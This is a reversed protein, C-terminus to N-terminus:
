RADAGAADCGPRTRCPAHDGADIAQCEDPLGHRVIRPELLGQCQAAPHAGRAGLKVAGHRLALNNANPEVLWPSIGLRREVQEFWPAMAAENLEVLGFRDAWFKLTDAPTRFSSAWNVTTSGGVCRGQLVTMAKDATKRAASEQYLAPYAESELQHFDASSRLPGEEIIILKLGAKALLEATIGAGAGSGIIAVDCELSPPLRGHEGGLVKWGRALGEKIPDPIASM